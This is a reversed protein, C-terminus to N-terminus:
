LDPQQIRLWTGVTEKLCHQCIDLDVKNGDGFLSDYGAVFDISIFEHAEPDDTGFERGCRDCIYASVVEVTQQGMRKM